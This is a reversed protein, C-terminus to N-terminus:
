ETDGRVVLFSVCGLPAKGLYPQGEPNGQPVIVSDLLARHLSPPLSTSPRPPHSSPTAPAVQAVERLILTTTEAAHLLFFPTELCRAGKGKVDLAALRSVPSSARKEVEM